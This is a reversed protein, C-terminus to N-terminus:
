SNCLAPKDIKLFILGRYDELKKFVENNLQNNVYELEEVSINKKLDYIHSDQFIILSIFNNYNSNSVANYDFINKVLDKEKYSKEITNIIAVYAQSAKTLEKSNSYILLDDFFSILNAVSVNYINEAFKLDVRLEKVSTRLEKIKILSDKQINIKELLNNEKKILDFNSIFDEFKRESEDTIKIQKELEDNKIKGYSNLYLISLEREKQINSLLESVKFTFNMYSSTKNMNKVEEIKQSILISSLLFVALIPLVLILLIKDRLKLNNM